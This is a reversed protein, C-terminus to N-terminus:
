LAKQNGSRPGKSWITRRPPQSRGSDISCQVGVRVELRDDAFTVTKRPQQGSPKSSKGDSAILAAAESAGIAAVTEEKETAAGDCQLHANPLQGGVRVTTGKMAVASKKRKQRRSATAMRVKNKLNVAAEHVELPTIHASDRSECGSEAHAAPHLPVESELASGVFSEWKQKAAELEEGVGVIRQQHEQLITDLAQAESLLDAHLQKLHQTVSTAEELSAEYVAIQTGLARIKDEDARARSQAACLMDYISEASDCLSTPTGIAEM